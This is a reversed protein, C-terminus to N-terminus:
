GDDKFIDQSVNDIQYQDSLLGNCYINGTIFGQVINFNQEPNDEKISDVGMSGSNDFVLMVTAGGQSAAKYLEIDSAHTTVNTVM